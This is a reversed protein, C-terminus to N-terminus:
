FAKRQGLVDQYRAAVDAEEGLLEGNQELEEIMVPLHHALAAAAAADPRSTALAVGDVDPLPCSLSIKRCANALSGPALLCEFVRAAIQGWGINWSRRQAALAVGLCLALTVHVPIVLLFAVGLGHWATLLPGALFLALGETVGLLRYPLLRRRRIALLREARRLDRRAHPTVGLWPLQVAGLFPLLPHLVTVARRGLRWGSLPPALRWAGGMTEVLFVRRGSHLRVNEALFFAACVLWFLQDPPRFGDLIDTM